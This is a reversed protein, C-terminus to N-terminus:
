KGLAAVADRMIGDMFRVDDGAVQSPGLRVVVLDLSPVIVIYQGMFGRAFFTDRPAHPLGWPVGWGPVDGDQANVFFGAGYGTGPTPTRAGAVWGDPLVRRGGAMGDHLYLLGLRAYDRASASFAHAGLPTGTVDFGLTTHAMGLPGFLTTRAHRVVDEAHGGLRDRLVRSLLTFHGDAYAWRTGPAVDLPTAEAFAAPDAELYKMRTSPDFPTPQHTLALGSTQRLLMEVTIAARPDGPAAWAALGTPVGPAVRGAAMATGTLAHSISKAVSWSPMATDIGHGPAYREAVIRDRHIVVVAKTRHHPPAPTDTFARDLLDRWPGPAPEVPAAADLAPWPSEFVVPAPPGFAPPAAGEPLLVCGFGDLWTSQREFGGAFRASVRRTDRDVDFSLLPETWGMGPLGLVNETLVTGAPQASTFVGTCMQQSAVGAAVRMPTTPGGSACAALAFSLVVTGARPPLRTPLVPM